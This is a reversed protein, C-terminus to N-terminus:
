CGLLLYKNNCTIIYYHAAANTSMLQTWINNECPDNGTGADIPMDRGYLIIKKNRMLQLILEEKHKGNGPISSKVEASKM